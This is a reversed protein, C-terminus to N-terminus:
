FAFYKIITFIEVLLIRQLVTLTKWRQVDQISWVEDLWASLMSREGWGDRDDMVRLLDELSCGMNASFHHLYTRASQCVSALRHLTDMLSHWKHTWGQKELLTRFTKNTKSLHNKLHSILYGHLQQIIRHQKWSKNLIACLKRPLDSKWTISLRNICGVGKSLM